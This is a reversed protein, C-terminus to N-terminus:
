MYSRLLGHIVTSNTAFFCFHVQMKAIAENATALKAELDLSKSNNNSSGQV